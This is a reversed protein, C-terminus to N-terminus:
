QASGYYKQRTRLLLFEARQTTLLKYESKLHEFMKARHDQFDWKQCVEIQGIQSEPDLMEALRMKSLYSAYSICHGRLHCKTAEWLMQPNVDTHKNKELFYTIERKIFKFFDSNQLLFVTFRWRNKSPIYQSPNFKLMVPSHDSILIPLISIDTVYKLSGASIFIYDIRLYSKHQSSFFTFDRNSPNITRWPDILNLDTMFDRLLNSSANSQNLAQTNCMRDLNNDVVIKVSDFNCKIFSFRGNSDAGSELINLNLNRKILISVGKTKNPASSSAAIRYHRNQCRHVDPIKLQTEQRLAIDVSKQRLFDLSKAMFNFVGNGNGGPAS